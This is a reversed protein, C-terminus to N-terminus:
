TTAISAYRARQAPLWRTLLDDCNLMKEVLDLPVYYYQNSAEFGIRSDAIQLAYLRRTLASEAQLLRELEALAEGTARRSAAAALADRTRVFDAQNAVSQFHIGAAEIVRAEADVAARTAAGLAAHGAQGDAALARRLLLVAAEFGAAVLAMQRAFVDPPYIARWGDLHDYPFGVMTSQYGTPEAWLLNAPGCQTPARYVVGGHYPFEAFATSLIHWAEIVAPAAAGFRRGAVRAIAEEPTLDAASGIAAVVELNPSPYGGLTWGLMLGDVGAARVNAAHRAVLEMAPIYPVASLEWTVAVQMKAIAGLGRQRALAWHRTARPGPGVASISYEGVTSDIGGRRIPLQWESVSMLAADAPLGAITAEADEDRWGWDWVLLRSRSGAARRGEDILRNVEAIVEAASRRACRPCDKGQHHSWCNTLNESATITFLGALDPVALCLARVAERLYDQVEPLSTCMTALDRQAVGQLQPHRRFFDPPMARPENLYLYLGIGHERARATLQNLAALRQERGASLEPQWPFLALKYLVAQLWIGDVGCDALRALYGDPYPDLGEELLPDGYLAFYSYCFRPHFRSAPPQERRPAPPTALAKVFSFLPEGAAGVGSPLAQRVLQGIEEARAMAEADPRRYELRECQPKLRGLKHWLFDDERLSYSLEEATSGLLALLQDYPLLHWNRRIVTIASRRRQDASVEPPGALGMARGIRLVDEATAGVVAALQELPVLQWNRWVYAHLRDPFHPVPLAPPASGVPLSESM